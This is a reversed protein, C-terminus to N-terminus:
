IRLRPQSGWHLFNGHRGIAVADLTKASVGGSIVEAEPSDEFGGVPFWVLECAPNRATARKQVRWMPLSDPAFGGKFYPLDRAAEPTPKM